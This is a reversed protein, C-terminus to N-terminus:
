HPLTHDRVLDGRVGGIDRATCGARAIPIIRERPGAVAEVPVFLEAQREIGLARALIVVLRQGGLIELAGLEARHAPRLETRHMVRARDLLSELLQRALRPQRRNALARDRFWGRGGAHRSASTAADRRAACPPVGDPPM